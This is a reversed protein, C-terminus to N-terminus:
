GVSNGALSMHSQLDDVADADVAKSGLLGNSAPNPDVNEESPSSIPSSTKADGSSKAAGSAARKSTVSYDSRFGGEADSVAGTGQGGEERAHSATMAGPLEVMEEYVSQLETLSSGTDHKKGWKAVEYSLEERLTRDSDLIRRVESKHVRFIHGLYTMMEKQLPSRLVELCRKASKCVPLVMQLLQRKGLKGLVRGKALALAVQTQTAVGGEAEISEEVAVQLDLAGTAPSDRLRGPLSRSLSVMSLVYCTDRFVWDEPKEAAVEQRHDSVNLNNDVVGGLVESSLQGTLQLKQEASLGDVCFRYIQGRQFAGRRGTLDIGVMDVAAGTTELSTEGSNLANCEGGSYGRAAAARYADHGAAENLVFPAEFAAVCLVDPLKRKLPGLLAAKALSRVKADDDVVCCVLRHLLFGRLKLYDQLLLQTICVVAHTRVLAAQDQLCRAVVPLQPDALSTFRVCLDAVILLANSRTAACSSRLILQILVNMSRSAHARYRVCLKGLSVLAIARLSPPLARGSGFESDGDDGPNGEGPDEGAEDALLSYLMDVAERSIAPRPLWGQKGHQASDVEKGAKGASADEDKTYGVMALEGVLFAAREALVHLQPSIEKQREDYVVERLVEECAALCKEAWETTIQEAAERTPSKETTLGCLLGLSAKLTDCPAGLKLLSDLAQDALLRADEGSVHASFVSVSNLVSDVNRRVSEVWPKAENDGGDGAFVEADRLCAWSRVLFAVHKLATSPGVSAVSTLFIPELLGWAARRYRGLKFFLESDNGPVYLRWAAAVNAPHKAVFVDAPSTEDPSAFFGPLGVCAALKLADTVTNLEARSLVGKHDGNCLIRFMGILHQSTGSNTFVHELFNWFGGKDADISALLKAHPDSSADNVTPPELPCTQRVWDMLPGAFVRRSAAVAAAKASVETDFCLPLVGRTWTDWLQRTRDEGMSQAKYINFSCELVETLLGAVCSRVSASPDRCAPTVSSLMAEYFASGRPLSSPGNQWCVHLARGCVTMAAKRVTASEDACRRALTETQAQELMGVFDQLQM